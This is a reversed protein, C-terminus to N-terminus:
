FFRYRIFVLVGDFSFGTFSPVVPLCELPDNLFETFVTVLSTVSASALSSILFETSVRYFTLSWSLFAACTTWYFVFGEFGLLVLYFPSCRAVVRYFFPLPCFRTGWWFFFGTLSPVVRLCELLDNLFETFAIVLSTLSASPASSILFETFSFFSPLLRLSAASTARALAVLDDSSSFVFFSSPVLETFPQHFSQDVFRDLWISGCECRGNKSCVVRYCRLFVRYFEVLVRNVGSWAWPFGTFSPLM